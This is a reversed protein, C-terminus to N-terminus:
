QLTQFVTTKLSFREGHNLDAKLNSRSENPTSKETWNLNTFQQLLHLQKMHFVQCRLQDNTAIGPLFSGVPRVSGSWPLLQFSVSFVSRSLFHKHISLFALIPIDHAIQSQNKSSWFPSWLFASFNSSCPPIPTLWWSNNNNNNNDNDSANDDEVLLLGHKGQGHSHKM